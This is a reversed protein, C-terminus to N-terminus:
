AAFLSRGEMEFLIMVNRSAIPTIMNMMAPINYMTLEPSVSRVFWAFSM